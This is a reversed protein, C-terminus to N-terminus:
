EIAFGGKENERIKLYTNLTALYKELVTEVTQLPKLFRQFPKLLITLPRSVWSLLRHSFEPSIAARPWM